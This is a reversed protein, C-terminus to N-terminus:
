SRENIGHLHEVARIIMYVAVFLNRDTIKAYEKIVLYIQEDPLPNQLQQVAEWVERISPYHGHELYYEAEFQDAPHM